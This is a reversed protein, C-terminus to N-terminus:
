DRTGTISNGHRSPSEDSALPDRMLLGLYKLARDRPNSFALAHERAARLAAPDLGGAAFVRAIVAAASAPSLPDFYHAHHSCLDHNFPRDSAFLPKEMALAELPTASACELLSPFVVADLSRYFAPCQVIKLRGVNVCCARFEPSCAQWELDDFTVHIKADIGHAEKLISVIEPFIRTNKHIYNRGLFGLKLGGKLDGEVTPLSLPQWAAEDGYVASFCNRVVHISAPDAGLRAVVGERVHDLEVVFADARRFFQKQLWFKAQLRRRALWPLSSRCENDPHLIWPQAFGVISRFPPSWRYLPGFVTFVVDFRDLERYLTRAGRRIGHVDIVSYREFCGGDCGLAKLEADVESSAFVAVQAAQGPQSELERLFSAAVQVGGGVHLNAANVACKM